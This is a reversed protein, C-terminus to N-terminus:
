CSIVSVASCPRAGDIISLEAQGAILSVCSGSPLPVCYLSAVIICCLRSCLSPQVVAWCIVLMMSIVDMTCPSHGALTQGAM